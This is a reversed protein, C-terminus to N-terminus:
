TLEELVVIPVEKVRKWAPENTLLADVKHASATAIHIADPTKLRYQARLRAAEQAIMASVTVLRLRSNMLIERYEHALAEDKERLPKVLVELLVITSAYCTIKGADIADILPVLLPLYRPEEEIYYYILPASDLALTSIRALSEM